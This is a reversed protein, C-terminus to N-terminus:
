DIDKGFEKICANYFEKSVEKKEEENWDEIGIYYKSNECEVYPSGYHNSVSMYVKSM